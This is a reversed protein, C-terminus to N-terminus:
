GDALGVIRWADDTTRMLTVRWSRAPEDSGLRASVPVAVTDPFSATAGEVQESEGIEVDLYRPARDLRGYELRQALVLSNATGFDRASVADLYSAVVQEPGASPAPDPVDTHQPAWAVVAAGLAVVAATIGAGASSILTPM